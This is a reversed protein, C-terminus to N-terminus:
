ADFGGQGFIDPFGARWDFANIRRAEEETLERGLVERADTGILSNGCIINKSLRPLLDRGQPVVREGELAKVYLSMMTIEVAQPDIDVGHINSKLIRAKEPLTLHIGGESDYAVRGAAEERHDAYWQIHHDILKQYAGLLFSGSGCAPDLIRIKEIEAPSKGAILKGVTNEVIYDVIYKPTYFVGGAKRVEPKEEVKVRKETLRIVSGLYREYITGLLEVKIVDFRYHNDYLSAIIKVLLTPDFRYEPEDVAHPKFIDGNLKENVEKFLSKLPGPHTGPKSRYLDAIKELSRAELIGRDEAIRIFVLRDLMRQVVETMLRADIKPNRKYLDKALEIRWGELDKLFADSVPEKPEPRKRLVADLSGQEVAERSLLAWLEDFRPVYDTHFFREIRGESFDRTPRRLVRYVLLEEFNTLVAFPTEGSNWAYQKAQLVHNALSESPKKAELLFKTTRGIKFAYDPTGKTGRAQPQVEQDQFPKGEKNGVDWGLARFLPGIFNEKAWEEKYGPSKVSGEQVLYDQVLKGIAERAQEKTVMGPSELLGFLYVTEPPPPGTGSVALHAAPPTERNAEAAM